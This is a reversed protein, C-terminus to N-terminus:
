DGDPVWRRWNAIFSGPGDAGSGGLHPRFPPPEADPADGAGQDAGVRTGAAAAAGAMAVARRSLHLMQMSFVFLLLGGAIPVVAVGAGDGALLGPAAAPTEDVPTAGFPLAEEYGPDVETREVLRSPFSRRRETDGSGATDSGAGDDAGGTTEDTEGPASGEDSGPAGDASDPDQGDGSDSGHDAAELVIPDPDETSASRLTGDDSSGTGGLPASRHAAVRYRYAGPDSVAVTVTTPSGATVDAVETWDTARCPEDASSKRCQDVVYGDLDPEDNDDWDVVILQDEPGFTADVGSPPAPPNALEVTRAPLDRQVEELLDKTTVVVHLRHTGNVSPAATPAPVRTSFSDCANSASSPYRMTDWTFRVTVTERLDSDAYQKSCLPGHVVEEDGDDVHTLDIRWRKIKGDTVSSDADITFEVFADGSLVEDAAPSVWRVKGANASVHSAPTMLLAAGALAAGIARLARPIGRRPSSM